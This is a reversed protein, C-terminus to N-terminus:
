SIFDSIKKTIESILRKHEKEVQKLELTQHDSRYIFRFTVNQLNRGLKDSEYLDLLFSKKLLKSPTSHIAQFITEISAEKKVTLTWDRDSGPFQPLPTMQKEERKLEMLDHLDIQAFFVREEIGLSKLRHPHVEGLVGLHFGQTQIRAQKGPHFSELNSKEFVPHPVDFTELFDEVKGKLDFFDFEKPKIGWHHPRTKGTLLIAATAREIYQEKHKFHVQGIEFASINHNQQVFNHKVAQLMGPLLSTRLISQDISSPKLVHIEEKKGLSKEFSLTALEPSILDCTLFEQLGSELLKCRVRNEMFYLPANPLPSNVVRAERKQINNYGFVRAVEEILDIEYNLDNRYSPITVEIYSETTKLEMELRKLFSEIENQSLQTGLIQNVRNVRLQIQRKQIPHPISEIKKSALEGGAFDIILMAARNLAKTVMEHDVGREFRASSESRIGLSKSSKRVASPHFHAAEILIDQTTEKVESHAGGMVGAVAVPEKEDYIMLTDSPIKRKLGDLTEFLIESTTSQVTIQNGNLKAYDFAHLPQGLELMVYNTIDVINNISRVGANELRRKIWDPSPGVKINKIVLCCYRYCNEVDVIKLTPHVIEQFNPEKIQLPSIKQDLLAAIDRAIGLISMCHGLNPTLSIEIITDGLLHTLDAGIPTKEALHMITSDHESLGLEKETCLMGMSEVERLKSPKIKLLKGKETELTAGVQALATKTGVSCSPDGCVIQLTEKGDFVQVVKLKDAQPHPQVDRIEVVVVHSFSFPTPEIKDVELGALTLVDCLQDNPIDLQVYEKLWSLPVRM